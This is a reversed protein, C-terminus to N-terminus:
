TLAVNDNLSSVFSLSKAQAHIFTLIYTDIYADKYYEHLFQFSSRGYERGIKLTFLMGSKPNSGCRCVPLTLHTFAEYPNMVTFTSL